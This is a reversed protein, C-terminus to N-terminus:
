IQKFASLAKSRAKEHIVIPAPYDVDLKLIKEDKIEWPKHIFKNPVNKLEPVWKRVYEGSKDFKEGQLIPNFIRFYPAADAGSGAVWQWGSVNNAENYDLLCNKFYKEGEKWNILLHKVLFSGVIMRVRNHMWGTSYLERMGADVIPYGTLGKKWAKLNKLNKEWPFKDFKKSYNEKLMHPFFNILSHNFERWGIEALFKSTGYSKVKNCEEWITEVHIQGHKIFPSLKSTGRLYPFNRTDSYKTITNGIFKKLELLANEESPCWYNEFKKFWKKKPIIEKEDITKNFFSIKKKCKSITKEKSPIKELYFKEASRWFPTFVKFPTGDNKKVEHFENLINGKFINFELNNKKFNESLFRDFKLYNPEYTRNWYISFNKKKFLKEFFSKYSEISVIELNINYEILKNKFEILSKSVWWKQAEQGEYKSKKYLFFAVVERHKKTAEILAFNKKIRFDDKLWFLGIQNAMINKLLNILNNRHANIAQHHGQYSDCKRCM